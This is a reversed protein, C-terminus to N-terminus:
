SQFSQAAEAIAEQSLGAHRGIAILDQTGVAVYKKYLFELDFPDELDYGELDLMGRRELFKIRKVWTDDDPLGDLLELGFMVLVDMVAVARERNADEVAALYQPDNPNEEERGKEENVFTPVPPNKIRGIVEDVLSAGVPVIRGRVGTSLVFAEGAGAADHQREIVPSTM